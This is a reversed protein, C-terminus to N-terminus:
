KSELKKLLIDAHCNDELKCSCALNYGRLPEIDLLKKSVVFDLYIEYLRLAEDRTFEGLKNGVKYPNGYKTSRDVKKTNDPLKVGKYIDQLSYKVRNSM